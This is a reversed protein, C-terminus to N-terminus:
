PKAFLINKKSAAELLATWEAAEQDGLGHATGALKEYVDAHVTITITSTNAANDIIYKLSDYSLSQCDGMPLDCKLSMMQIQQLASCQGFATGRIMTVDMLDIIGFVKVLKNNTFFIGDISKARVTDNVSTAVRVTELACCGYANDLNAAAMGSRWWSNRHAIATRCSSHPTNPYPYGVIGTDLVIAAEETSLWLENGYFPKKPDPANIPDYKGYEGFIADWQKALSLEMVKEEDLKPKEVPTSALNCINHQGGITLRLLYSVGEPSEKFGEPVYFYLSYIEGGDFDYDIAFARFSRNEYFCLDVAPAKIITGSTGGEAEHRFNLAELLPGLDELGTELKPDSAPGMAHIYFVSDKGAIATKASAMEQKLINQNAQFDNRFDSFAQQLEKRANVIDSSSAASEELSSVLQALLNGLSVPSISDKETIKRFAALLNDTYQSM